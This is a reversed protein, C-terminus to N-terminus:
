VPPAGEALPLQRQLEELQDELEQQRIKLARITELLAEYETGLDGNRLHHNRRPTTQFVM